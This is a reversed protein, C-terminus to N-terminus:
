PAAAPAPPAVPAAPVAPAAPVVPAPAVPAVAPAAGPVVPVAPTVAAAPKEVWRTIMHIANCSISQELGPKLEVVIYDPYIEIIQPPLLYGQPFAKWQKEPYVTIEMGGTFAPKMEIRQGVALRALMSNGGDGAFASLGSVVLLTLASCAVLNKM